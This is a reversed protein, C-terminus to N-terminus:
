WILETIDTIKVNGGADEYLYMIVWRAEAGPYVTTAQCLIAHNYGSVVQRGLYAVPVYNVGVLGDVAKDFLARVEDTIAPDAATGWSGDAPEAGSMAAKRDQEEQMQVLSATLAWFEEGNEIEYNDKGRSLWHAEFSVIAQTGDSLDFVIMPYWDTISEDVRGKVTIKNLATWLRSILEPDETTFESISFGYGDTYYVKEVTVGADLKAQVKDLGTMAQFDEALACGVPIMLALLVAILKKMTKDKREVPM